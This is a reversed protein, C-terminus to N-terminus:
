LFIYGRKLIDLLKYIHDNVFGIGHRMFINLNLSYLPPVCLDKFQTTIQVVIINKFTITGKANNTGGVLTFAGIKAM